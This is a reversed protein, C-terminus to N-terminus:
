RDAASCQSMTWVDTLTDLCTAISTATPQNIGLILQHQVILIDVPLQLMGELKSAGGGTNKWVRMDFKFRGDTQNTKEMWVYDARGLLGFYPEGYIRAFHVRDRTGGVGAHTPGSNAGKWFGQRRTSM